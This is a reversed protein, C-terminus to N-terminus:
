PIAIPDAMNTMQLILQDSRFEFCTQWTSDIKTAMDPQMTVVAFSNEHQL